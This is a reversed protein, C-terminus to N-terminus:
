KQTSFEASFEAIVASTVAGDHLSSAILAGAAGNAALAALDDRGRVGGAAYFRADPRRRRLRQLIEVDPGEGAGVRALTMVIVQAPWLTANDLLEAPGLFADGRFDLSLIIRQSAQAALKQALGADNQSESGLVLRLNDRAMIERARAADGVGADLWFSLQPFESGLAALQAEHGDRGEIADLDAVYIAEFPYLALLGAVVDRPAAGPALPTEIPRYARREGRRARVVCGGLLDIVPLILM